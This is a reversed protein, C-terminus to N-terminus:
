SPSPNKLCTGVFYELGDPFSVGLLDSLAMVQCESLLLEGPEM